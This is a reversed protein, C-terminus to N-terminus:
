FQQWLMPSGTIRWPCVPGVLIQGVLIQSVPYTPFSLATSGAHLMCSVLKDLVALPSLSRHYEKPETRSIQVTLKKRVGDADENM